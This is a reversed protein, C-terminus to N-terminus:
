PPRGAKGRRDGTRGTPRGVGRVARSDGSLDSGPQWRWGWEPLGTLEDVGARNLDVPFRGPGTRPPSAPAAPGDDTWPVVLHMGDVVPTALNINGLQGGPRAGGAAAIADAVRSGDPVSVLGPATVAGSVHVTVFVPTSVLTSSTPPATASPWAPPSPAQPRHWFAFAMALALGTGVSLAVVRWHTTNQPSRDKMDPMDSM